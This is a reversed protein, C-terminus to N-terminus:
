CVCTDERHARLEPLQRERYIRLVVRRCKVADPSIADSETQPCKEDLTRVCVM